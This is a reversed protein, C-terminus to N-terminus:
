QRSSRMARLLAVRCCQEMGQRSWDRSPDLVEEVIGARRCLFFLLGHSDAPPRAAIVAGVAVGLHHRFEIQPRAFDLQLRCGAFFRLGLPSLYRNRSRGPLRRLADFTFNFNPVAALLDRQFSATKLVKAILNFDSPKLLPFLFFLGDSRFDPPAVIEIM